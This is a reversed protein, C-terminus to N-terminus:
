GTGQPTTLPAPLFPELLKGVRQNVEHEQAPLYYQDKLGRLDRSLETAAKIAEGTELCRTMSTLGAVIHDMAEIARLPEGERLAVHIADRKEELVLPIENCPLEGYTTILKQQADSPPKPKTCAELAEEYSIPKSCSKAIACFVLRRQDKTLGKLKGSRMNETMCSRFAESRM